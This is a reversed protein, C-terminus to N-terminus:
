TERYLKIVQAKWEHTFADHNAEIVIEDGAKLDELAEVEGFLTNENVDVRIEEVKETQPDLRFVKIYRSLPSTNIEVIKSKVEIIDAYAPNSAITLAMIFVAVVINWPRM